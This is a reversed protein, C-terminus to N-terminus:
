IRRGSNTALLTPFQAQHTKEPRHTQDIHATEVAHQEGATPVDDFHVLMSCVAFHLRLSFERRGAEKRQGYWKM